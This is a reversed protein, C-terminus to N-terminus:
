AWNGFHDEEEQNKLFRHASIFVANTVRNAAAKDKLKSWMEKQGPFLGSEIVELEILEVAAAFPLYNQILDPWNIEESTIDLVQHSLFPQTNRRVEVVESILSARSKENTLRFNTLKKNAKLRWVLDVDSKTASGGRMGQGTVKGIHDLRRYGLGRRKFQLGAIMYFKLWTSNSNEEGDIARSITDIVVFDPKVSDLAKELQFGGEELDLPAMEPFSAYILNTLSEAEFGMSRLRPVVDGLVSNEHDFYLIRVPDRAPFGLVSTGAALGACIELTILSKGLGEDSYLVHARDASLVGPVLWPEEFEAGFATEWDVLNLFSPHTGHESASLIGDAPSEGSSAQTLWTLMEPSPIEAGRPNAAGLQLAGSGSPRLLAKVAEKEDLGAATAAEVLEELAVEAPIHGGGILSGIRIGIEFLKSNKGGERSRRLDQCEADLAARGYPSM